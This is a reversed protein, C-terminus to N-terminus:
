SRAPGRWGTSLGIGNEEAYRIAAELVAVDYTEWTSAMAPSRIGPLLDALTGPVGVTRHDTRTMDSLEKNSTTHRDSASSPGPVVGTASALDRSRSVMGADLVGMFGGRAHWAM